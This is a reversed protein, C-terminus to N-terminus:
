TGGFEVSIPGCCRWGVPGKFSFYEDTPPDNLRFTFKFVWMAIGLSSGVVTLICSWTSPLKTLFIILKCMSWRRRFDTLFWHIFRFIWQLSVISHQRQAFPLPRKLFLNQWQRHSSCLSRLLPFLLSNWKTFKIESIPNKPHHKQRNKM